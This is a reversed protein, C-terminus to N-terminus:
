PCPAHAFSLWARRDRWKGHLRKCFPPAALEKSIAGTDLAAPFVCQLACHLMHQVRMQFPPRAVMASPVSSRVETSKEHRSDGAGKLDDWFWRIM